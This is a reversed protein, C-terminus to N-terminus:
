QSERQVQSAHRAEVSHIQLAAELVVKNFMVNGAQGKYADVDKIDLM